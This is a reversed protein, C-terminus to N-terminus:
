SITSMWHYIDEHTSYQIGTITDFLKKAFPGIEDEDTVLMNGQHHISGVPSIVAATGTGFVEELTDQKDAEFIEDITIPREHVPIDWHQALKIVSDRTIGSLISGSLQPTHLEGDIKFFINMTGVEEIYKHEHADLWIIQTFGEEKAKEAPLLTPGYNCATKIFGSGGRVARIYEDTTTLSVPNFGEEYYAGVPSTMILLRYTEAPRVGLCADTAFVLPRIYLANGHKKPVWEKDVSIMKRLARELLGTDLPPICMRECSDNLRNLHRNLRFFRVQDDEGRFAKMGEFVTQGYHLTSMAPSIRLDDFPIIQADQWEGAKYELSFMHDSFVDGFGPNDLDVENVRSTNRLQLLIKSTDTNPQQAFHKAPSQKM